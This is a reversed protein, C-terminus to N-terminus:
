PQNEDLADVIEDLIKEIEGDPLGDMNARTFVDTMSIEITPCLDTLLIVVEDSAIEDDFWRVLIDRFAEINNGLENYIDEQDSRPQWEEFVELGADFFIVAAFREAGADLSSIEGAQLKTATEFLGECSALTITSVGIPIGWKQRLEEVSLAPTPTPTETLTPTHTFTSTPTPTNTPSPTTSPTLTLSPTLSPTITPSATPIAPQSGCAIVALFMGFGIATSFLRRVMVPNGEGERWM